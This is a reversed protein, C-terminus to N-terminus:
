GAVCGGVVGADVVAYAGGVEATGFKKALGTGAGANEVAAEAVVVDEVV